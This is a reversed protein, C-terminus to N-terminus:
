TITHWASKLNIDDCYFSTHPPLPIVPSDGPRTRARPVGKLVPVWMLMRAYLLFRM